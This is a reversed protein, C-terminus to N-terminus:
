IKVIVYNQLTCVPGKIRLVVCITGGSHTIVTEQQTRASRFAVASWCYSARSILLTTGIYWSNLLLNRTLKVAASTSCLMYAASKVQRFVNKSQCGSSTNTWQVTCGNPAPVPFHSVAARVNEGQLPRPSNGCCGTLFIRRRKCRSWHPSPVQKQNCSRRVTRSELASGPTLPCIHLWCKVTGKYSKQM